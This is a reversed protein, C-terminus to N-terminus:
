KVINFMHNVPGHGHGFKYDAGSEIAAAEYDGAREVAEALNCGLALYSAIASSLTCGTGHTNPTDIRVHEFARMDDAMYLCDRCVAGDLHGGKVLVANLKYMSLLTFGDVRDADGRLFMRAEPINPTIVAALPFLQEAMAAPVDDLALSHGSTAVCVPDLVVNALHHQRIFEAVINVIQVTPLMGIKVADPRVDAIVADLQARLLEPSVPQYTVVGLTNQATVATIATMAYVGLSTCTKIDAQIGAGGICDSGAISLVTRYSKKSVLDEIEHMVYCTKHGCLMSSSITDYDTYFLFTACTLTRQLLIYINREGRTANDVMPEFPIMEASSNSLVGSAIKVPAFNRL